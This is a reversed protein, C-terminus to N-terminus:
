IRSNLIEGCRSRDEIEYGVGSKTLQSQSCGRGAPAAQVCCMGQSDSWSHTSPTQLAGDDPSEQAAASQPSSGGRKQGAPGMLANSLAQYEHNMFRSDHFYLYDKLIRTVQLLGLGRGNLCGRSFRRRNLRRTWPTTPTPFTRSCTLRIPRLERYFTARRGPRRFTQGDFSGAVAIGFSLMSYPGPIPGDTEVDASFYLDVTRRTPPPTPLSMPQLKHIPPCESKVRHKAPSPPALKANRRLGGRRM